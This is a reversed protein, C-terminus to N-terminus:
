GARCRACSGDAETDTTTTGPTAAIPWIDVTKKHHVTAVKTGDSDVAVATHGAPTKLRTLEHGATLDWLRVTGDTSAML